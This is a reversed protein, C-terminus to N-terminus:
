LLRSLTTEAWALPVTLVLQCGIVLLLPSLDVNGLPPVLKRLPRLFPRALSNLLPAAPSYPSTWSLIAQLVVVVMVLYLFLQALRLAALLALAGLATGTAADWEYGRVGLLLAIGLVETLWALALTALDLGFLGPIVRRVPRVAFDTVTVIFHSLPNRAPARVAQLTFRLLFALALLGTATTVLFAAAQALM